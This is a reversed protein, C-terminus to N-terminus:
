MTKMHEKMKTQLLKQTMLLPLWLMMASMNPVNAGRKRDSKRGKEGMKPM